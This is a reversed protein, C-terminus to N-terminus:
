ILDFKGLLFLCVKSYLEVPFNLQTASDGMEWRLFLFRLMLLLLWDVVM